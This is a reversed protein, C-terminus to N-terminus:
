YNQKMILIFKWRSSFFILYKTMFIIICLSVDQMSKERVPRIEKDSTPGYRTGGTILQDNM